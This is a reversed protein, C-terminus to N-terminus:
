DQGSRSTTVPSQTAPLFHSFVSVYRDSGLPQPREHLLKASEFLIMQGPRLSTTHWRYVHDQIRIPWKASDSQCINMTVGLIHTDFRDRHALLKAGRRYVRAGYVWTPRVSSCCWEEVIPAVERKIQRRLDDPLEVLDSPRSEGGPTQKLYRRAVREAKALHSSQAYWDLISLWLGRPISRRAFGARTLPALEEGPDRSAILPKARQNFWKTLVVKQGKVVPTSAHRTYPNPAGDSALNSWIIASGRRPRISLGMETFITEGGEEPEQVYILVTLARQGPNLRFRKLEGPKFYDTHPRFEDDPQYVHAQLPESLSGALGLLEGIRRDVDAVLVSDLHGLYATKSRRYHHADAGSTTASPSLHAVALRCIRSCEGPSLFDDIAYVHAQDFPFRIAIPIDLDM